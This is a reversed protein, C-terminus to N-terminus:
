PTLCRLRNPRELRHSLRWRWHPLSQAVPGRWEGPISLPLDWKVWPTGAARAAILLTADATASQTFSHLNPSHNTPHM